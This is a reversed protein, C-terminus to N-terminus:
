GASVFGLLEPRLRAASSWLRGHMGARRAGDVNTQRDDVFLCNAADARLDALLATWIQPDPKALRLDGSFVLHRFHATWPQRSAVRGFSSPANSLLALRAGADALEALLAVTDEDTRLWGDIDIETLEASTREDVDVGLEAGISRWYELDTCGRDYLDRGAWYAAAFEDTGAGLRGALAPLAETHRSIVGGYDFVVWNATM